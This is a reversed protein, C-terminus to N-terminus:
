CECGKDHFEYATLGKGCIECPYLEDLDLEDDFQYLTSDADLEEEISIPTKEKKTRVKTRKIGDRMEERLWHSRKTRSM